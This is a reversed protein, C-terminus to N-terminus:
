EGLYDPYESQLDPLFENNLYNKTEGLVALGLSVQEQTLMIVLAGQLQSLKTMLMM